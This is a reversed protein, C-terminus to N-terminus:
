KFSQIMKKLNDSILYETGPMVRSVMAEYGGERYTQNSCLYGSAGDCHTIIVTNKFPSEDKIRMGIETMLEGSVGAFVINGIKMVSLNIPVQDSSELKQNPARTEFQKKGNAMVRMKTAEINGDPFTEITIAIRMVEEGVIMGMSEIESFNDNPGYIPNIDASAGATVAVVIDREFEKEVFRAALGPWDGTIQYNEHGSATGHCPWNVHLAIPNRNMDDVRIVAVDHDCPGDPNRGLWVNGDAFRARRNINMKCSGVGMGMMAPQMNKNALEVAGVIKQQLESVYKEIDPDVNDGYTKNRPGGHNHNASMMIFDKKIGLKREIKAITAECFDHSFGILDATIIVSKATGDSFVTATVYLSDHVGKFPEDRGGYGSMRIPTTPTINVKAVGAMLTSSKRDESQQNSIFGISIVMAFLLLNLTIKDLLKKM